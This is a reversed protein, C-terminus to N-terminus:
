VVFIKKLLFNLLLLRLVIEIFFYIKFIYSVLDEMTEEYKEKEETNGLPEKHCILKLKQENSEILNPRGLSPFDESSTPIINNGKSQRETIASASLSPFEDDNSLQSSASIQVM